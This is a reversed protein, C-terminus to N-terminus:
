SLRYFGSEFAHKVAGGETRNVPVVTVFRPADWPRRKAAQDSVANDAEDSM